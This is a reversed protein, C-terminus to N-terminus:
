SEGGLNHHEYLTVLLTHLMEVATQDVWPTVRRATPRLYSRAPIILTRRSSLISFAGGLEHIRAYPVRSGFHAMLELGKVVIQRIGERGAGGESNTLSRALRASLIRLPGLDGVSRRQPRGTATRETMANRMYTGVAVGAMRTFALSALQRFM